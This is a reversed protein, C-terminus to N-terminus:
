CGCIVYTCICLHRRRGTQCHRMTFAITTSEILIMRIILHNYNNLNNQVHQESLAGRETGSVYLKVFFAFQSVGLYSLYYELIKFSQSSHHTKIDSQANNCSCSFSFILYKMRKCDCM